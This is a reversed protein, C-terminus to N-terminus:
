RGFLGKLKNVTDKADKVPDLAPPPVPKAPTASPAAAAAAPQDPKVPSATTSAAQESKAPSAGARDTDASKRKAIQEAEAASRAENEVMKELERAKANSQTIAENQLAIAAKSDDLSPISGGIMAQLKARDVLKKLTEFEAASIRASRDFSVTIRALKDTAQNTKTTAAGFVIREARADTASPAGNAEISVSTSRDRNLELEKEYKKYIERQQPQTKTSYDNRLQYAKRAVDQAEAYKAKAAEQNKAREAERGEKRLAQGQADLADVQAQVDAPLKALEDIERRQALQGARYRRLEDATPKVTYRTSAGFVVPDNKFDVCFKRDGGSRSPVSMTWGEPPPLFAAGMAAAGRAYLEKQQPSADTEKKTCEWDALALTSALTLAAGVLVSSNRFAFRQSM